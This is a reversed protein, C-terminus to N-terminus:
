NQAVFANIKEEIARILESLEHAQSRVCIHAHHDCIFCKREPIDSHKRSLIGQKPCIVDIDWYRGLPHTQEINICLHKIPEAKAEIAFLAELGADSSFCQQAIVKKGTHCLTTNIVQLATQCLFHAGSSNKIDGPIVMTLSILTCGYQELWLQQRQQRTDRASLIQALTIKNGDTLSLLAKNM